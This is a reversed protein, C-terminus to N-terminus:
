EYNISTAQKKYVDLDEESFVNIIIRKFHHNHSKLYDSITTLAIRSALQIDVGYIGTSISCFTLTTIDEYGSAEELISTYCSTLDTILEEKRYQKYGNVNPGVTHIVYKSPLNYAKTMKALGVYEDHNQETMLEYCEHRLGLGANVHIANDICHHGPIFCGLLKENAANVIADCKISTIDGKYIYINELLKESIDNVDVISKNKNIFQLYEQEYEYYTDSLKIPSSITMLNRILLKKDELLEPVDGSLKNVTMLENIMYNMLIDLQDVKTAEM